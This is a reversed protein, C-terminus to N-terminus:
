QHQSSIKSLLLPDAAPPLSLNPIAVPPGSERNQEDNVQFDLCNKGSRPLYEAM